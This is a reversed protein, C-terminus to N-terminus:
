VDILRINIGTSQYKTVLYHAMMVRGTADKNEQRIVKGDPGKGQQVESDYGSTNVFAVYSNYRINDLKSFERQITATVAPDDGMKFKKGRAVTEFYTSIMPLNRARVGRGVVIQWQHALNGSYQPTANVLDVFMELVQAQYEETVKGQLRREEYLAADLLARAGRDSIIAGIM